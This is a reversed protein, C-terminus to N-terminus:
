DESLRDAVSDAIAERVLFSGMDGIQFARMGPTSFAARQLAMDEGVRVDAVVVFGDLFEGRRALISAIADHIERGIEADDEPSM